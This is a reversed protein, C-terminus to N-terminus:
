AKEELLEAYKKQLDSPLGDCFNAPQEQLFNSNFSIFRNELDLYETDNVVASLSDRTVDIKIQYQSNKEIYDIAENIERIPVCNNTQHIKFYDYLFRHCSVEYCM